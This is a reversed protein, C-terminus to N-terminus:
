CVREAQLEMSPSMHRTDTRWQLAGFHGTIYVTRTECTLGVTRRISSFQFYDSITGVDDFCLVASLRKHKSQGPQPSKAFADHKRGSCRRALLLHKWSVLSWFVGTPVVSCNEVFTPGRQLKSSSPRHCALHGDLLNGLSTAAPMSLNWHLYHHTFEGHAFCRSKGFTPTDYRTM